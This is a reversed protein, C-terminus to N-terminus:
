APSRDANRRNGFWRRARGPWVARLFDAREPASSIPRMEVNTFPAIRGLDGAGAEDVQRKPGLGDGRFGRFQQAVLPESHLFRRRRFPDHDIEARGIDRLRHVDTVNAAGHQTVRERPDSRKEAVFDNAVIVDAIPARLEPHHNVAPLIQQIARRELAIRNGLQNADVFLGVFLNCGVSLDPLRDAFFQDFELCAVRFIERDPFFGDVKGHFFEFAGILHEVNM